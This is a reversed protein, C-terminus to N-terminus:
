KENLFTQDIIEEPTLSLGDIRPVQNKPITVIAGM